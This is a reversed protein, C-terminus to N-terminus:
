SEPVFVVCLFDPRLGILKERYSGHLRARVTEAQTASTIVMAGDCSDPPSNFYGVRTLDRFYWPLPWYEESIVLIPAEPKQARAAVALPHFKLVDPSSHVYAFPNRADAPRLFAVLKTQEFQLTIVAAVIAAAIMIRSRWTVLLGAALVAMPPIFHILHWPTKYPTASLATAVITVYIAAARLQPQRLLFGAIFGVAALLVFAAEQFLLGGDRHWTLIQFYYWWPKEHGSIGTVRGAAFGYVSVADRLGSLHTGFSSYLAAAVFLAALLALALARPWKASVPPPPRLAFASVIAAFLFLPASAKTAQMLGVFAGASVAWTIRGTIWWRHACWFAGLTFTLLLSEQIFYRSFYVNAPAVALLAAAATAPLRGLPMALLAILIVAVTGALAPVLRVTTESLTALTHEGRLWAVPVAAYYLTPGHHDRPDFQYKGTELLEGTKVAQNAEDAHMPRQNLSATRLWLAIAAVVAIPLWRTLTAFM